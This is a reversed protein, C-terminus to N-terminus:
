RFKIIKCTFITQIKLIKGPCRIEQNLCVQPEQSERVPRRAAPEDPQRRHEEQQHRGWRKGRGVAQEQEPYEGEEIRGDPAHVQVAAPREQQLRLVLPRRHHRM